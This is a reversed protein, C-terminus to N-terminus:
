GMLLAANLISPLMSIVTSPGEGADTGFGPLIGLGLILRGILCISLYMGYHLIGFMYDFEFVLMGIVGGAAIMGVIGVVAGMDNGPFAFAMLPMLMWLIAYLTACIGVRAWLQKRFFPPAEQNRLVAYAAYAIPFAIATAGTALLYVPFNAKDAIVSRFIAAVALFAIVCAVIITIQVPSLITESRSIPKLIARGKSDKPGTLEPAHIVVQEDAAPIQIKAKCKPCPGEKGAFKDHVDFRTHCGTCTVRISM